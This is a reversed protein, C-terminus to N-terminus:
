DGERNKWNGFRCQDRCGNIEYGILVDNFTGDGNDIEEMLGFSQSNAPLIGVIEELSTIPVSKDDEMSCEHIMPVTYVITNRNKNDLSPYTAKIVVYGTIPVKYIRNPLIKQSNM